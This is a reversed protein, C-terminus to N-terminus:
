LRRELKQDVIRGLEDEITHIREKQEDSFFTPFTKTVERVYKLHDLYTRQSNLDSNRWDIHASLYHLSRHAEVISTVEQAKYTRNETNMLMKNFKDYKLKKTPANPAERRM